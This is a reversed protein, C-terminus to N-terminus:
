DVNLSNQWLKTVHERHIKRNRIEPTKASIENAADRSRFIFRRFFKPASFFFTAPFFFFCYYKM